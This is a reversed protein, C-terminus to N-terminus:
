GNLQAAVFPSCHLFAVKRDRLRRCLAVGDMDIFSVETLDLILGSGTALFQDCSRRLEEVWPGRLQGELRLTVAEDLAEVLSIRLVIHDGWEKTCLASSM